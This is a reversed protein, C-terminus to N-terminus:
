PPTERGSRWPTLSPRPFAPNSREHMRGGDSTAAKRGAVKQFKEGQQPDRSQRQTNREQRNRRHNGEDVVVQRHALGLDPEQDAQWQQHERQGGHGSRQQHRSEPGQLCQGDPKEDHGQGSGAPARRGVHGQEIRGGEGHAEAHCDHLRGQRAQDLLPHRVPDHQSGRDGGIAHQHADCGTRGQGRRQDQGHHASAPPEIEHDPGQGNHQRPQEKDQGGPAGGRRWYRVIVIGGLPPQPPRVPAIWQDPQQSQCEAAVVGEIVADVGEQRVIEGVGALGVEDARRQGPAIHGLEDGREDEQGRGVAQLPAGPGIQHETRQREHADEAHDIAAAEGDHDRGSEDAEGQGDGEDVM